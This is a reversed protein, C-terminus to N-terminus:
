AKPREYAKQGERVVQEYVLGRINKLRNFDKHRVVIIDVPMSIGRIMRRLHVSEKRCHQISDEAVVLLDLDSDPESTGRAYSGFLYVAHPQCASVIRDIASRVKEKTIAWAVSSTRLHTTQKKNM